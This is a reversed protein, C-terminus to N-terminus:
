QAHRHMIDADQPSGVRPWFTRVHRQYRLRFDHSSFEISERPIGEPTINLRTPNVTCSTHAIYWDSELNIENIVQEGIQNLKEERNREQKEIRKQRKREEKEQRSYKRQQEKVKSNQRM